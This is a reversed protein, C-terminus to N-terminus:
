GLRFEFWEGSTDFNLLKLSELTKASHKETDGICFVTVGNFDEATGMEAEPEDRQILVLGTILNQLRVSNTM